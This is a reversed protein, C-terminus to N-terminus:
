WPVLNAHHEMETLLIADCETVNHRAWSYAVLNIAETANKTFIVERSSPANIFRRMTERAGEYAATYEEAIEYVARHINAYSHETFHDMAEIVARPKQSSNASALSVLRHGHTQRDLIPFDKKVRAVDLSTVAM